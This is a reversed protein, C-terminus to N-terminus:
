TCARCDAKYSRSYGYDIAQIVSLFPFFFVTPKFPHKQPARHVITIFAFRQTVAQCWDCTARGKQSPFDQNKVMPSYFSLWDESNYDM